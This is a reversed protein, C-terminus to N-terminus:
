KELLELQAPNPSVPNLIYGGESVFKVKPNITKLPNFLLGDEGAAIYQHTDRLYDALEKDKRLARIKDGLDM